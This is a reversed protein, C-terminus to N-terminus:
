ASTTSSCSAPTRRPCAPRTQRATLVSVATEGIFPRDSTTSVATDTKVALCVLGAHWGNSIFTKSGNVVYTEGDRRATTAIATLDSGAGPESMAIAGVLEGSAMRRLWRQKQAESGYALIYRAVICQIGSGFHVGARALEECVVIEHALTGGGGGYEEPVGPLLMGAPGAAAWAEADPRHQARWRPEHPALETEVFRRVSRRFIRLEENMWPSRDSMAGSRLPSPATGLRVRTTARRPWLGVRQAM